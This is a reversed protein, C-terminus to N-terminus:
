TTGVFVDVYFSYSFDSNSFICGYCTIYVHFVTKKFECRRLRRHSTRNQANHIVKGVFWLMVQLKHGSNKIWKKIKEDLSLGEFVSFHTKNGRLLEEQEQSIWIKTIKERGKSVTWIWFPLYFHFLKHHWLNAQMFKCIYNKSYSM